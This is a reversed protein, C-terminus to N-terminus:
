EMVHRTWVHEQDKCAWVSGILEIVMAQAVPRLGHGM